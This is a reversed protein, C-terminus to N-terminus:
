EVVEEIQNCQNSKVVADAIIGVCGLFALAIIFVILVTDDDNRGSM